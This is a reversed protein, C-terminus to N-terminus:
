TRYHAAIRVEKRRWQLCLAQELSGSGGGGVHRRLEPRRRQGPPSPSSHMALPPGLRSSVLSGTGHLEGLLEQCTEDDSLRAFMQLISSKQFLFLIAACSVLTGVFLHTAINLLKLM